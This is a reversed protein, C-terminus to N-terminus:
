APFAPLNAAERILAIFSKGHESWYAAADRFIVLAIPWDHSLAAACARAHCVEVVYGSAPKWSFDQLADALADWNKGFSSPFALDKALAELLSLKDRAGSLDVSFWALGARAAAARLKATDGAVGYVGSRDSTFFSDQPTM